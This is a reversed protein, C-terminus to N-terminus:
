HAAPAELEHPRHVSYIHDPHDYGEAMFEQEYRMGIKEAVRISASNDPDIMAILRRLGLTSFAADRVALAAETAFGNGWAARVLRYGIEIEAQGNVNPFYFLGCYGIFALTDRRLVAYPGYGRRAYDELRDRLWGTVWAASKVGDGFRMVEADGFVGMLDDRDQPTFRRLLLRGTTLYSIGATM